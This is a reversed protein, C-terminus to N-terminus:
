AIYSHHAIGIARLPIFKVSICHETNYGFRELWRWRLQNTLTCDTVKEVVNQLELYSYHVPSGPTLSGSQVPGPM